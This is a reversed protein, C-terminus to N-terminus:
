IYYYYYYNHKREGRARDAADAADDAAAAAIVKANKNGNRDFFISTIKVAIQHIMKHSIAETVRKGSTFVPGRTCFVPAL